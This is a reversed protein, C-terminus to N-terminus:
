YLANIFKETPIIKFLICLLINYEITNINICKNNKNKYNYLKEYFKNLELRIGKIFNCVNIYGYILNDFSENILYYNNRTFMFTDYLIKLDSTQKINIIKEVAFKLLTKTCKGCKNKNIVDIKNSKKVVENNNKNMYDCKKVMIEEVHKIHKTGRDTKNKIKKNIKVKNKNKGKKIIRYNHNNGVINQILNDNIKIEIQYNSFLYNKLSNLSIPIEDPIKITEM